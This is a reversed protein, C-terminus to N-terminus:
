YILIEDIFIWPKNGVGPHWYPLLRDAIVKVELASTIVNDLTVDIIVFGDEKQIMADDIITTGILNNDNYVEVKAPVFIWSKQNRLTSIKVANVNRKEIELQYSITDGGYGLWGNNFDREGKNRDILIDLGGANYKESPARDSDVSLIFEKPLKVLDLSTTESDIYNESIATVSVNMSKSVRLPKEYLGTAVHDYVYILSAGEQTPEVSAYTTEEFFIQDANIIPASLQVQETQLYNKKSCALCCLIALIYVVRNMSKDNQYSLDTWCEVSM